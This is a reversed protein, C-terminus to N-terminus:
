TEPEKLQYIGHGLRVLFGSRHQKAVWNVLKDRSLEPFSAKLAEHADKLQTPDQFVKVAQEKWQPGNPTKWHYTEFLCEDCHTQGSKSKIKRGCFPTECHGQVPYESVTKCNICINLTQKAYKGIPRGCIQCTREPVTTELHGCKLCRKWEGRLPEWSEGGCIECSEDGPEM